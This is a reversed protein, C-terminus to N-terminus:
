IRSTEVESGKLYKLEEQFEESHPGKIWLIKAEDLEVASLVETKRESRSGRADRLFRIVYAVKASFYVERTRNSSTLQSSNNEREDGVSNERGRTCEKCNEFNGALSQNQNRFGAQVTGGSISTSSCHNRKFGCILQTTM